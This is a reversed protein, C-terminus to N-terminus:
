VDAFAQQDGSEAAGVGSAPQHHTRELRLVHAVVGGDGGVGVHRGTGVAFLRTAFDSASLRELRTGATHRRRDVHVRHEQFGLGVDARLHHQAPAREAVARRPDIVLHALPQHGGHQVGELAETGLGIQHQDLTGAAAGLDIQTM